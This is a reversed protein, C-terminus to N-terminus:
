KILEQRLEDILGYKKDEIKKIMAKHFKCYSFTRCLVCDYDEKNEIRNIEEKLILIRERLEKIKKFNMGKGGWVELMGM